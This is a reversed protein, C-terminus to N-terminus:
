QSEASSSISVSRRVVPFDDRDLGALAAVVTHPVM